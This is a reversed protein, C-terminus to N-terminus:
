VLVFISQACIYVHARRYTHKHTHSIHTHTYVIRCLSITETGSNSAKQSCKCRVASATTITTTATTTPVNTTRTAAAATVGADGRMRTPWIYQLYNEIYRLIDTALVTFICLENLPTFLPNTLNPLTYSLPPRALAMKSPLSAPQAHRKSRSKNLLSEKPSMFSKFLTFYEM